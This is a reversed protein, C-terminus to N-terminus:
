DAGIYNIQQKVIVSVMSPVCHIAINIIIDIVNINSDIQTEKKQRQILHIFDFSNKFSNIYNAIGM